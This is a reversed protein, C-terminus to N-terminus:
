ILWMTRQRIRQSSMCGIKLIRCRGSGGSETWWGTISGFCRTVPRLSSIRCPSSMMLIQEWIYLLPTQPNVLSFLIGSVGGPDGGITYHGAMHVGWDNKEPMGLMNKQFLDITDAEKILAYTYNAYLVSSAHRNVDRRLCRPNAGFGDARPNPPIDRFIGGIPGLSVTM